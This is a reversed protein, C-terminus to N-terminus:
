AQPSNHGNITPNEEHGDTYENPRIHHDRWSQFRQGSAHDRGSFEISWIDKYSIQLANPSDPLFMEVHPNVVDTCRNFVYGTVSTGSHCHITVDGRYDFAKEILDLLSTRNAM